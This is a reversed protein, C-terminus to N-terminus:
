PSALIEKLVKGDKQPLDLEFLSAITPAIDVNEIIGIKAGRQIARGAAVFAANMNTNSALYGHYGHNTLPGVPVVFEDGTASGSIAYGDAAALVLDAMGPNKEPTPLGLAAFQSPEVIQAIGEKGSFLELVKKRDAGRTHPNKLYVMGIGGEPLVQARAKAIRNDRGLELLGARRLLVNPQLLNTARAFGHDATVFVTTNSRIGAADLANLVERVHADALGLARYSSTTQPGYRHHVSDTNLLHLLLLHPKRRQIVLCAAKTWVDDHGTGGLQNFSADTENTLINQELLEHLLRPTTHLLHDPTDPFNDDLADSNRTCPWDIAATRYGNSHLIDFLAPSKVLDSKDLKSEIKVPEAAEGRRLIGNFLVSHTAPHVGTVLTTHNPWTVAPNAVRLGEAVAGQAALQRITPIPTQPDWFMYAPFGDITILVVHRDQTAARLVNAPLLAIVVALFGALLANGTGHDVRMAQNVPPRSREVKYLYRKM